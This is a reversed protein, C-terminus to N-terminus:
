ARANVKAGEQIYGRTRNLVGRRDVGEALQMKGVFAAVAEDLTGASRAAQASSRAAVKAENADPLVDIAKFEAAHAQKWALAAPMQEREVTLQLFLDLDLHSNLVAKNALAEAQEISQATLFRPGGVEVIQSVKMKSEDFLVVRGYGELGPNNWGTPVLAGIQVIDIGRETEWCEHTHWNGCMVAGIGFQACLEELHEVRISDHAGQLFPATDDDAIGVHLCLIRRLGSWKQGHAKQIQAEIQALMAPVYQKAPGPQSPVMLVLASIPDGVPVAQPLDYVMGHGELPGLSHDGPDISHQEHNGLLVMVNTDPLEIIEQVARLVQPPPYDTDLLDGAVVVTHCADAVKMADKLARLGMRCRDNMGISIPGGHTRPNGIHCDALFALM